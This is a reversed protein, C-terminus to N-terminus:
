QTLDYINICTEKACANRYERRCPASHIGREPDCSISCGIIFFDRRSYYRRTYFAALLRASVIIQAASTPANDSRDPRTAELRSELNWPEENTGMRCSARPIQYIMILALFEHGNPFNSGVRAKICPWMKLEARTRDRIGRFYQLPAM